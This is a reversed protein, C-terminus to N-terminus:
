PGHRSRPSRRKSHWESVGENRGVTTFAGNGTQKGPASRYVKEPSGPCGGPDVGVVEMGAAPINGCIRRAVSDVPEPAPPGAGPSIARVDGGPRPHASVAGM